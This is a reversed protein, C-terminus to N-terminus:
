FMDKFPLYIYVFNIFSVFKMEEDTKIPTGPVHRLLLDVPPVSTSRLQCSQDSQPGQLYFHKLAKM